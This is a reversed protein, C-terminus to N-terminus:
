LDRNDREDVGLKPPMGAPAVGGTGGPGPRRPADEARSGEGVDHVRPGGDRDGGVGRAVGAWKRESTTAM